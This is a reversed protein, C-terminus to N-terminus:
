PVANMADLASRAFEHDPDLELAERLHDLAADREGLGMLAAGLYAHAMASRPNHDVAIELEKRAEQNRGLHLLAIGLNTRVIPDSPHLQLAREYMGVAGEPDGMMRLAAGWNTYTAALNPRDYQAAEFHPIAKDPQNRTLYYYGLHDHAEANADTVAIAREFLPVTGRWFTAQRWCMIFLLSILVGAIGRAVSPSAQIWSLGASAIWVVAIFIGIAPVYLYRDAMAQYGVQVFGIVPVLTGVFWCWGVFLYPARSVLGLVTATIACVLGFALLAPVLPFDEGAHPYIVALRVPFALHGLYNAYSLVANALKAAWSLEAMAEMAAGRQQVLYTVGSASATLIFYPIKEYALHALRRLAQTPTRGAFRNLPWYDLLLMVFPLTVLMPKAM